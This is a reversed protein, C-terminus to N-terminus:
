LNVEDNLAALIDRVPLCVPRPSGIDCPACLACRCRRKPPTGAFDSLEYERFRYDAGNFAIGEDAASVPIDRPPISMGAGTAKMFSEKLTWFRFFLTDRRDGEPAAELLAAEDPTFFRHALALDAHAVAEIDCGVPATRSAACLAYEGSHSLNFHPIGDAYPKGHAGFSLEDPLKAGLRRMAFRLLLDATLSLRRDEARLFRDTKARRQPSALAYAAAYAAEDLLDDACAAYLLIDPDSMIM